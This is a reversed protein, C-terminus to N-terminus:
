KKNSKITKYYKINSNIAKLKRINKGYVYAFTLYFKGGTHSSDPYHKFWTCIDVFGCNQRINIVDTKFM